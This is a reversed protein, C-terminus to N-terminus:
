ETMMERSKSGHQIDSLARWCTIMKPNNNGDESSYNKWIRVSGDDSSYFSCLYSTSQPIYDSYYTCIKGTGTLLFSIDHPNIFEAATIKSTTNGNNYTCLKSGQDIDWVSYFLIFQIIQSIKHIYTCVEM